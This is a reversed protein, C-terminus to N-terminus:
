SQSSARHVPLIGYFVIPSVLAIVAGLYEFDQFVVGFVTPVRAIQQHIAWEGAAGIVLLALGVGVGVAVLKRYPARDIPTREASTDRAFIAPYLQEGGRHRLSVPDTSEPEVRNAAEPHRDFFPLDRYDTVGDLCEADYHRGQWRIWTHVYGRGGDELIDVDEEDSVRDAVTEAVYRCYHLNIDRPEHVRPSVPNSLLKDRVERLARQVATAM